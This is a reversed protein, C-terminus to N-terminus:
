RSRLGTPALGEELLCAPIGIYVHPRGRSLRLLSPIRALAGLWQRRLLGPFRALLAFGPQGHEGGHRHRGRDQGDPYRGAVAHEHQIESSATGAIQVGTLYGHQRAYRPRRYRHIRDNAPALM